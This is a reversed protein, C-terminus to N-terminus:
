LQGAVSSPAAVGDLWGPASDADGVRAHLDCLLEVDEPEIVAFDVNAPEVLDRAPRGAIEALQLAVERRYCERAADGYLTVCKAVDGGVPVARADDGDLVVLVPVSATLLLGTVLVRLRTTLFRSNVGM